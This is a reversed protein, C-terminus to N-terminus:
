EDEGEIRQLLEVLDHFVKANLGTKKKIRLIHYEITNRHLFLSRATADINMDNDAIGRIIEKDMPTM